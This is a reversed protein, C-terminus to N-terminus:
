EDKDKKTKLAYAFVSLWYMKGIEFDKWDLEKPKQQKLAPPFKLERIKEFLFMRELKKGLERHILGKNSKKDEKNGFAAKYDNKTNNKELIAKLRFLNSRTLRNLSNKHKSTCRIEKFASLRVQNFWENQYYAMGIDRLLASRPPKKEDAPVSDITPDSPRIDIQKQKDYAMIHLRGYGLDTLAGIAYEGILDNASQLLFVSGEAYAPYKTTKSQWMTNYHEVFTKKSYADVVQTDDLNLANLLNQCSIGPTCDSNELILPTEAQALYLHNSASTNSKHGNALTEAKAISVQVRGYEVSKSKGIKANFRIGITAFLKQLLDQPGQIYGEFDQDAAISEYYYIGPHDETSRGAARELRSNHFQLRRPVNVEEIKGETWLLRNNFAKSRKEDDHEKAFANVLHETPHGKYAHLHLGAVSAGDPKAAGFQIQGSLFIDYFDEDFHANSNLKKSKLYQAALMGRIMSGNIVEDTQVTNQDGSLTPIIIPSLSTLTLKVRNGLTAIEQEGQVDVEELYEWEVKVKGLGRNRSTGMYRLQTCAMSLIELDQSSVQLEYIGAFCITLKATSPKILRYTRLSKDKAIGQDDVATVTKKDTFFDLINEKTYVQPDTSKLKQLESKLATWDTLYLNPSTRIGSVGDHWDSKGFVRTMWQDIHQDDMGNIELVERASERLLGKVRKGNLYPLGTRADCLVDIDILPGGMNGSSALYSLPTIKIKVRHM